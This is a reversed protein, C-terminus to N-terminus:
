VAQKDNSHKVSVKRKFQSREIFADLLLALHRGLFLGSAVTNTDLVLCM